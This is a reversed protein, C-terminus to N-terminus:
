VESQSRSIDNRERELRKLTRAAKFSGVNRSCLRALSLSASPATISFAITLVNGTVLVDNTNDRM